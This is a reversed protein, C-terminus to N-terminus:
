NTVECLGTSSFLACGYVPTEKASTKNHRLIDIVALLGANDGEHGRSGTIGGNFLLRGDADYLVVQGSTTAHFLKAEREGDDTRLTVCPIAAASKCTDTDTWHADVGLPTAVLVTVSALTQCRAMLINLESLTARTCPCKPHMFLVLAPKGPTRALRSQAPWTQPISGDQRGPTYSHVLVVAMGYGVAL